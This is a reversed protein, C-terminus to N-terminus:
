SNDDDAIMEFCKEVLVIAGKEIFKKAFIGRGKEELVRV